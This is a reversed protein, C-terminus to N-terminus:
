CIGIYHPQLGTTVAASVESTKCRIVNPLPGKLAVTASSFGRALVFPFM